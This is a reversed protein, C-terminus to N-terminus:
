PGVRPHKAHHGLMGGVTGDWGQQKNTQKWPGLTYSLSKLDKKLSWAAHAVMSQRVGIKVAGTVTMTVRTYYGSVQSCM